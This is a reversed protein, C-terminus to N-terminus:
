IYMKLFTHSTELWWLSRQLSRIQYKTSADIGKQISLMGFFFSVTHSTTTIDFGIHPETLTEDGHDFFESM